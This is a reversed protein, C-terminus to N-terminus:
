NDSRAQRTLASNGRNNDNGNATISSVGQTRGLAKAIAEISAEDLSVAGIKAKENDKVNSKKKGLTERIEKLRKKQPQSLKSYEAPSYYREEVEVPESPGDKVKRKLNGKPNTAKVASVNASPSSKGLGRTQIYDKIRRVAEDFPTNPDSMIASIMPELESCKIGALLKRVRSTEDISAYGHAKLDNLVNVYETHRDAYKQFTWKRKEGTYALSNLKEEYESAVNNTNNPGLFHNKLAIWAGRGDANRKFPKMHQYAAHNEFVQLLLRWVKANDEPFWPAPKGYLFHPCRARQEAQLNGGYNSPPDDDADAPAQNERVVYDLPAKSQNGYHTHLWDELAEFIRPWNGGFKELELVSISDITRDHTLLRPRYLAIVDNTLDDIGSDRSVLVQQHIAFSIEKLKREVGVTVAARNNATGKRISSCADHIEAFTFQELSEIDPIVEVILNAVTPDVVCRDAIFDRFTTM